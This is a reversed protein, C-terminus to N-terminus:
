RKQQKSVFDKVGSVVAGALRPLFEGDLLLLEDEPHTMFVAEIIFSIMDTQRTVYYTSSIRGFPELGLELLRHYVYKAIEQSQPVTYYTSTGRPRLPNTAAGISNNHLSVFIHSNADRALAIRSPLTMTTDATRTLVVRAGLAKLSDAVMMAYKLNVDKELMGTASVAGEFEGGHGPDITITLNRLLSDPAPFIRPTKRINFLLQRGVYRGRYGWQQMQNLEIRLVFKEGSEQRWRITRITEDSKPYMIWQPALRARYFTIELAAPELIQEVHFPVRDSVNVRLKVWDDDESTAISGISAYPLQFGFPMPRLSNSAIFGVVDDALRVKKFGAQEAITELQIGEQLEMWIEGEPETRILNISDATAGILPIMPSLIHLKGRSQFKIRRNDKGRLRFVVPKAKYGEIEPITVSGEYHGRDTGNSSAMEFMRINKAIKDLSFSAEGKPSGWFEVELREGPSLYVDDSPSVRGAAVATPMEPLPKPIPPRFVVVTDSFIGLSDRVDFVISNFGDTLDVLGVFAGSPYVRTEKGQVRVDAGPTVAGAYRVRNFNVTDGNAPFAVRLRDSDPADLRSLDQAFASCSGTLIVLATLFSM